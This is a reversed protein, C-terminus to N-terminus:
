LAQLHQPDVASYQAKEQIALNAQPYVRFCQGFSLLQEFHKLKYIYSHGADIMIPGKKENVHWITDATLPPVYSIIAVSGSERKNMAQKRVPNNNKM